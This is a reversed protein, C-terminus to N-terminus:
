VTFENKIFFQFCQVNTYHLAQFLSKVHEYLQTSNIDNIHSPITKQPTKLLIALRKM